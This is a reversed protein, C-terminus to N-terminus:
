SLVQEIMGVAITDGGRRLVFRGLARCDSFSEMAIPMNLKIEIVAQTNATLARPREKGTTGDSKLTKVLRPLHCPVDLQHMHFICAAGRIIPITLGELIWVKARCLSAQVPMANARALISGVSLRVLDVGTVVMDVMEGAAAYKLREASDTVQPQLSHMKHIVATDQVPLVQVREGQKIWGQVVKGRCAVGKGQEGTVDQLLIRVPKKLALALKNNTNSNNTNGFGDLAQWVTPGKYWGVTAARPKQYLNVGSLGACPVFRIKDVTYGAKITLFEKLQRCKQEYVAEDWDCLDMKNVVCLIQTVGLGRALVLHERLQGPLVADTADIVALAGDSQAVGTITAPVYDAHGPADLLVVSHQATSVTQTSIDM